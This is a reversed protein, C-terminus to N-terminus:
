LSFVNYVKKGLAIHYGQCKLIEGLNTIIVYINLGSALMEKTQLYRQKVTNLPPKYNWDTNVPSTSVSGVSFFSYYNINYVNM